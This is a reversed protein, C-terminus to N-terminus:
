CREMVVNLRAQLRQAEATVLAAVKTDPSKAAFQEHRSIWDRVVSAKGRVYLAWGTNKIEVSELYNLVDEPHM